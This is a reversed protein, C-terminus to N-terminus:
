FNEINKTQGAKRSTIDNEHRKIDSIDERIIRESDGFPVCLEAGQVIIKLHTLENVIVPNGCAMADLMTQPVGEMLSPLIFIDSKNYLGSLKLNDWYECIEVNNRLGLKEIRM